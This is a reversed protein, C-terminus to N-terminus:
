NGGRVRFAEVRGKANENRKVCSRLLEVTYLDPNRGEDVMRCAVM